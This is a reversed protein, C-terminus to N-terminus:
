EGKELMERLAKLARQLMGAVAPASRGMQASIEALSLGQLHRLVVAERQAEPLRGIAHALRLADEERSLHQSPTSQEAALWAEARMTSDHLGDDLQQERGVDRRQRRFQRHADLLNRALMQRLWAALEADSAGRFQEREAHAELLTQQVIDSADLKGRLRVDLQAWALLRLYERFPELDRAETAAPHSM